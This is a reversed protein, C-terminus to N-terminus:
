PNPPNYALIIQGDIYMRLEAEGFVVVTDSVPEDPGMQRDIAVREGQEDTIEVRFAYARGRLFGYNAPDYEIPIARGGIPVAAEPPTQDPADPAAAGAATDARPGQLPGGRPPPAPEPAEFATVEGNVTLAVPSGWLTYDSPTVATVGRPRSPDFSTQLPGVRLGAASLRRAAAELPLGVVNPVRVVQPNSVSTYLTVQTSLPVREGAAPLQAHVGPPGLRSPIVEIRRFGLALLEDRAPAARRGVLNPVAVTPPEPGRSVVLSATDHASAAGGAAPLQELVTGAAEPAHRYRLETVTLGAEALLTEAAEQPAGVVDPVDGREAAGIGLSVSRGRRVATGADPTQSVVGGALADPVTETYTSVAFGLAELTRTAHAAEQGLVDPIVVEDVQLYRAASLAILGALALLLGLSLLARM